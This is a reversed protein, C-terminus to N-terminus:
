LTHDSSYTHSNCLSSHCLTGCPDTMCGPALDCCHDCQQAVTCSCVLLSLTLLQEICVGPVLTVDIKFASSGIRSGIWHSVPRGIADGRWIDSTSLQRTFESKSCRCHDALWVWLCLLLLLLWTIALCWHSMIQMLLVQLDCNETFRLANIGWIYNFLTIGYLIQDYVLGHLYVGIAWVRM